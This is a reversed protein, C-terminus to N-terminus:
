VANTGEVDRRERDIKRKMSWLLAEDLKTVILSNERCPFMKNFEEIKEKAWAIVDDIQCGNVGFEKIPGSQITFTVTSTQGHVQPWGTEQIFEAMRDEMQKGADDPNDGCYCCAKGDYWCDCHQTDLSNRCETEWDQFNLTM